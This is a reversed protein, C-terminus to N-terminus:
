VRKRLPFTPASDVRPPRTALKRVAVDMLRLFCHRSVSSLRAALREPLPRERWDFYSMYEEPHSLLHKLYDALARPERYSNALIYSGEPAFDAVNPAGLYVPVVGALFCDFLKETVYDPAISNELALCFPYDAIVKRKTESGLDPIPPPRNNLFRGYSDVSIHRMLEGALVDRRSKNDKSSQFMVAPSAATKEPIPSRM